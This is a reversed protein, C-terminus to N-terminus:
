CGAAALLLRGTVAPAEVYKRLSVVRKFSEYRKRTAEGHIGSGVGVTKQRIYQAMLLVV